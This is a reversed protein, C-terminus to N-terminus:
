EHSAEMVSEGSLLMRTILRALIDIAAIRAAEDIQEWAAPAKAPLDLQDFLDLNLQM